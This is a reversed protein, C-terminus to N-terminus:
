LFNIAEVEIHQANLWDADHVSEACTNLSILLYIFISGRLFTQLLELMAIHIDNCSYYKYEEVINDLFWFFFFYLADEYTM